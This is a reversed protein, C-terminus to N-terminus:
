SSALLLSAMKPCIRALTVSKSMNAVMSRSCAWSLALFAAMAFLLSQLEYVTTSRLTRSAAVYKMFHSAFTPPKGHSLKIRLIHDISNEAHAVTLGYTQLGLCMQRPTAAMMTSDNARENAQRCHVRCRCGCRVVAAGVLYVM